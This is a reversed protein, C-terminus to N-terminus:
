RKVEMIKIIKDDTKDTTGMTDFYVNVSHGIPINTNDYKYINGDACKLECNSVITARRMITNSAMYDDHGIIGLGIFFASGVIATSLRTLKHM